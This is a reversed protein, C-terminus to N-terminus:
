YERLFIKIGHESSILTYDTELLIYVEEHWGPIFQQIGGDQAIFITIVKPPNNIITSIFNENADPIHNFASGQYIYKSAYHRKTYPYIYGNWGLNIITDDPVTYDDIIKGAIRLQTSSDFKFFIYYSLRIIGESFTICFFLLIALYKYKIKSFLQLLIDSLFAIVPVFFPILILNYHSNGAAFSLFINSLLYSLFFGFYYFSSINKYKIFYLIISICLPIFSFSRNLVVYFNKLFDNLVLLRFGRTISGLIVNYYFDNMVNNYKIYIYIPLLVIFIGFTFVFIYKFIDLIKKKIILEIIIILCFGAWLPFMNLRIMVSCTFCFGLAMIEFFSIKKESFYYKTFIYLSIVLFPLAYEETGANVYYFPHITLSTAFVSLVAINNNVFLIATKYMFLFAIYFLLIETLWVGTIGGIFYGPVSLFYTLPGKNDALDKYLVQGRTIGQTITIYVSTDVNMIRNSFPNLTSTYVISLTILFLCIYLMIKTKHQIINFM